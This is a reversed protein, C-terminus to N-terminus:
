KRKNVLDQLLKAAINNEVFEKWEHSSFIDEAHKNTFELVSHYLDDDSHLCAIQLVNSVTTTNLYRSKLYCSCKKKLAHLDYKDAAAYLEEVTKCLRSDLSGSYMYLLLDDMIDPNIDSIEVINKNAESMNTLFMRSFVPSRASLIFKHAPFTKSGTVINVDSLTGSRYLNRFDNKFSHCNISSVFAFSSKVIESSHSGNSFKFECDLLLMDGKPKPSIRRFFQACKWKKKREFTYVKEFSPGDFSIKSKVFIRQSQTDYLKCLFIDFFRGDIGEKRMHFKLNWRCSELITVSFVHSYLVSNIPLRSFNQIPWEFSIKEM